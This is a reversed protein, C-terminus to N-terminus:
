NDTTPRNGFEPTNTKGLVIAGAAELREVVPSSEEPVYEEFVRSGFTHRTGARYAFLDKIAVPVGHLPGLSEGADIAREAERADGRASERRVTVYANLEDNRAAIRDLYADVVTVPSLDRDHIRESLATASVFCLEDTM